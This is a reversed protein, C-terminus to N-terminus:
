GSGTRSDHSASGASCGGACASARRPSSRTSGSEVQDARVPGLIAVVPMLAVAPFPAFPVYFSDGVPIVDNPGLRIDIGVRGHLFADALYFFDGRGADFLRNALWYILASAAVIALGILLSAPLRRSM